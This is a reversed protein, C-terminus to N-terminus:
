ARWNNGREIHWAEGGVPLCLGLDHMLARCKADNGVNTYSGSRGSHLYSTDCANGAAHNSQSNKGCSEWSHRGSYKTCCLAALNGRGELYAMRLEWQRHATRKYEGAWLYRQRKEGLEDLKKSLEPNGWATDSDLVVFPYKSKTTFLALDERKAWKEVERIEAKSFMGPKVKALGKHSAKLTFGGAAKRWVRKANNTKRNRAVCRYVRDGAKTKADTM